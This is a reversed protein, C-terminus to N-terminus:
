SRHANHDKGNWERAAEYMQHYVEETAANIEIVELM